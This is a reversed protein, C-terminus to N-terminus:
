SVTMNQFTRGTGRQRMIGLEFEEGGHSSKENKNKTRVVCRVNLVPILFDSESAGSCKALYM